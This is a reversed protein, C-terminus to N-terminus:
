QQGGELEACGAVGWGKGEREMYRGERFDLARVAPAEHFRPLSKMRETGEEYPCATCSKLAELKRMRYRGRGVGMGQRSLEEFTVILYPLFNQAKAIVVPDFRL